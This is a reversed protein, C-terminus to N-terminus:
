DLMEFFGGVEQSGAAPFGIAVGEFNGVAEGVAEGIGAAVLDGDELVVAGALHLVGVGVGVIGVGDSGGLM